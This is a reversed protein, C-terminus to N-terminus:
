LWEMSAPTWATGMRARLAKALEIRNLPKLEVSALGAVTVRTELETGRKPLYTPLVTNAQEKFPDIEGNFPVARSRIAKEAETVSSTGTALQDLHKRDKQAATEPLARHEEGIVRRTAANAAFGNDDREVREVV